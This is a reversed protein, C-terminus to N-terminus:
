KINTFDEASIVGTNIDNLEEVKTLIFDHIEKNFDKPKQPQNGLKWAGPIVYRQYYHFFYRDFDNNSLNYGSLLWGLRLASRRQAPTGHSSGDPGGISQALNYASSVNSWNTSYKKRLYYGAFGDAELETNSAGSVSPFRYRFQVQHAIEHTAIYAVAARGFGLSHELIQEGWIVYGNRYSFANFTGDGAAFYLPVNGLGFLDASGKHHTKLFNTETQNVITNAWYSNPGFESVTACHHESAKTNLVSPSEINKPFNSTQDAENKLENKECSQMVLLVSLIVIRFIHRM